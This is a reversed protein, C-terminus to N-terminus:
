EARNLTARIFDHKGGTYAERDKPFQGALELKLAEYAAAAEPHTRLHDRFRLLNRWELSSEELMHLHHTRREPPGKVFYHRLPIGKEGRFIYGLRELPRVTAFTEGFDRVAVGIDLIPKASLGPVATSGIHEVGLVTDGLVERLRAQEESFAAEWDPQYDTLRVTNNELGLRKRLV